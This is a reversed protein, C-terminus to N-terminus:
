VSQLMYITYKILSIDMAFISKNITTNKIEKNHIDVFTKIYKQIRIKNINNM